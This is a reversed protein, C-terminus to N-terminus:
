VYKKEFIKSFVCLISVPRYNNFLMSDDNKYLPIVNAIKLQEPFIGQSLSM